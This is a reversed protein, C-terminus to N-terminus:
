LILMADGFSFFRYKRKIAEQYCKLILEKSAFASVLLLLTSKPLHFNTILGDVIKFQYGPYIFLNTKKRGSKVRFGKKTKFAFSELTRVVTTGVAIIRQSNEKAKNLFEAVEKKIEIEEEGMKHDEIKEERIPLFTALNVHLTVFKLAIGKQELKKLLSPTFHLGATPAAISGEKKAFITQYDSLPVKEKIYPPTPTQGIQKLIKFFKEGKLNFEIEWKGEGLFKKFEGTLNKEFFVKKGLYNRKVKKALVEWNEGKKNLLLIEVKGGTEKKGLLRAPIVKSDNFVLVDGKKLFKDLHYFRSHIIKQTKRDVVLLRCADRPKIPKQAILEKPLYFDFEQTKM